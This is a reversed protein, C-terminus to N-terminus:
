AQRLISLAVALVEFSRSSRKANISSYSAWVMSALRSYSSLYSLLLACSCRCCCVACQRSLPLAGEDGSDKVPGLLSLSIFTPPTLAFCCFFAFGTLALSNAPWGSHTQWLQEGLMVRALTCVKLFRPIFFGAVVILEFIGFWHSASRISVVTHVIPFM